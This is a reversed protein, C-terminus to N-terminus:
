KVTVKKALAINYSRFPTPLVVNLIAEVKNWLYNVLYSDNPLFHSELHWFRSEGFTKNILKKLEEQTFHNHGLYLTMHLYFIPNYRNGEVIIVFGGDKVVRRMERLVNEVDTVHHLLDRAFVGDFSGNKYPLQHADAVVFTIKKEAFMPWDGSKEIDAAVVRQAVQAILSADGGSGCGIDLVTKNALVQFLGVKEYMRRRFEQARRWRIPLVAM